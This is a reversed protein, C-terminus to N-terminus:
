SATRAMLTTKFFQLDSLRIAGFLLLAVAYATGTAVLLIPWAATRMLIAVGVVALSAFVVRLCVLIADGIEERTFAFAMYCLTAIVGGLVTGAAAGVAGLQSVFLYTAVSNVSLSIFAVQMSDKQKGRAFLLHSLFPNLFEVLLFWILVQLVAAAAAYEEDFLLGIIRDPIVSVLAIAPFAAVCMFRITERYLRSLANDARGHMRSMVPFIATTYSKALVSGLRVIKWAASYVGAAVEGTIWSLIIVDLARNITATWNEAAFVRWRLVFRMTRAHSFDWGLAGIRNLGMCYAFLMVVRVVVLVLVLALLGYGLYLALTSFIIRGLSEIVTGVTVFEAREKAVFVAELLSCMAAPFLAVATLLMALCTDSSYNFLNGLGWLIPPACVCLTLVLCSASTILQHTHSPWRALDRTLMIGAATATLSLFLEFFHVAISYKGFGEVGLADACYIVFVFSGVMRALTGAFLMATNKSARMAERRNSSAANSASM